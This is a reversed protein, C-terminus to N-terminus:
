DKNQGDLKEKRHREAADRIEKVTATEYPFVAILIPNGDGRHFIFIFDDDQAVVYGAQKQTDTLLGIYIM